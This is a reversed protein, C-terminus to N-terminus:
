VVVVIVLRGIFFIMYLLCVCVSNKFSGVRVREICGCSDKEGEEQMVNLSTVDWAGGKTRVRGGEGPAVPLWRRTVRWPM